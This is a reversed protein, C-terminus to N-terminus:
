SEVAEGFAVRSLVVSVTACAAWMLAIAVVLYWGFPSVLARVVSFVAERLTVLWSVKAELAALVGAGPWSMSTTWGELAWSSWGIGAVLALTAVVSAVQWGRPWTMWAREYWPRRARAKVAAMVRPLLTGPAKPGPLQRLAESVRRELETPEM